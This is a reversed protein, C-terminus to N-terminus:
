VAAGAGGFVALYRLWGIKEELTGIRRIELDYGSRFPSESRMPLAECAAVVPATLVNTHVM